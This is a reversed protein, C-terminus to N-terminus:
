RGHHGPENGHHREEPYPASRTCSTHWQVSGPDWGSVRGPVAPFRYEGGHDRRHGRAEETDALGRRPPHCSPGGLGTPVAARQEDM